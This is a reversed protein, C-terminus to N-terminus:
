PVQTWTMNHYRFVTGDSFTVSCGDQPAAGFEAELFTAKKRNVAQGKPTGSDSGHAFIKIMDQGKKAEPDEVETEVAAGDEEEEEEDAGEAEIMEATRFNTVQLTRIDANVRVETIGSDCFVNYGINTVSSPIVINKLSSCKAFVSAKIVTVSNFIEVIILSRCQSFALQHIQRVNPPINIRGLACCNFFALRGIVEVSSPLEINQLSVCGVFARPGIVRVANGAFAVELLAFCQAFAYQEITHVKAPLTIRELSSCCSFMRFTVVELLSGQEFTVGKLSSCQAFTAGRIIAVSAPITISEICSQMFAETGIQKVCCDTPWYVFRIQGQMFANESIERVNSGCVAGIGYKLPFVVDLLAYPPIQECNFYITVDECLQYGECQPWDIIKQGDSNIRPEAIPTEVSREVADDLYWWSKTGPNNVRWKRTHFHVVCGRSCLSIKGMEDCVTTLANHGDFLRNLFLVFDDDPINTIDNETFFIETQVTGWFIGRGYTEWLIEKDLEVNPLPIDLSNLAYCEAFAGGGIRIGKCAEMDVNELSYCRAFASDGISNVGPPLEVQKLQRCNFFASDEITGLQSENAFVVFTLASNALALSDIVRVNSPIVLHQLACGFFAGRGLTELKSGREFTVFLPVSGDSYARFTTVLDIVSEPIFMMRLKTCQVIADKMSRIRSNSEFTVTEVSSNTLARKDLKEISRSLLISPSNPLKPQSGILSTQQDGPTVATVPWCYGREYVHNRVAYINAGISGDAFIQEQTVTRQPAAGEM